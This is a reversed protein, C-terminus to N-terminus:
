NKFAKFILEASIWDEPSDIDQVLYKPLFFPVSDDSYFIKQSLFSKESGWYFQCADHFTPCLDQSRINFFSKNIMRVYGQKNLKFARQIPFPYTTASFVYGKVKNNVFYNYSNILFSDQIMPATASLCCVSDISINKDLLFEIAHKIVPITFALDSALESPRIFPVEAGYDVSIKRIEFDDTSVIVKDFLKSKIAAEISYAIIPKGCFSKINKKPIRKSGGRAPIIAVNM